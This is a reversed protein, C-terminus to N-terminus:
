DEKPIGCRDCWADWEPPSHPTSPTTQAGTWRHGRLRCWLFILEIRVREWFPLDGM